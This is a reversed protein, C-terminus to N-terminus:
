IRGFMSIQTLFVLVIMFASRDTNSADARNVTTEPTISACFAGAAGSKVRV